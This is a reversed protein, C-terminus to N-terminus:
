PRRVSVFESRLGGFMLVCIDTGRPPVFLLRLRLVPWHFTSNPLASFMSAWEDTRVAPQTGDALTDYACM